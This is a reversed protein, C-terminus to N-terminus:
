SARSFKKKIELFPTEYLRYSLEALAWSIAVALLVGAISFLWNTKTEVGIAYRTIGIALPHILYIGFSVKGIRVLPPFRLIKSDLLAGWIMLGAGIIASCYVVLSKSPIAGLYQSSLSFCILAFGVPLLLRLLDGRVPLKGELNLIAMFCGLGLSAINTHTYHGVGSLPAIPDIFNFRMALSILCASALVAKLARVPLVWVLLPWVLYFHEEVALSWYIGLGLRVDQTDVLYNQLFLFHPWLSEWYAVFGEEQADVYVGSFVTSDINPLVISYLLLVLFYLPWIRLGRRMVFAPFDLTNTEVKEKLLIQTILFGSLVFFISVGVWGFRLAEPSLRISAHALVVILVALGRIADLEPRYRLISVTM